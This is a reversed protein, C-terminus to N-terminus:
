EEVDFFEITNLKNKLEKNESKLQEIEYKLEKITKDKKEEKLRKKTLIEQISIYLNKNAIVIIDLYDSARTIAEYFMKNQIYPYWGDRTSRICLEGDINYFDKETLIVILKDFEQGFVSKTSLSDGYIKTFTKNGLTRTIYEDSEICKFGEYVCKHRIYKIAGCKESFYRVGINYYDYLGRRSTSHLLRDEFSFLESNRRVSKKLKFFCSKDVKQKLFSENDRQVESPHVVQEGDVSFIAMKDSNIASEIIDEDIRQSEDFFLIDANEMSEEFESLSIKYFVEVSFNLKKSIIIQDDNIDSGMIMLIKKNNNSYHKLIDLLLLTKGCGPGGSIVYKNSKNKLINDKINTQETNLRYLGNIFKDSDNYPSVLFDSNKLNELKQLNNGEFPFLDKIQNFEKEELTSNVPNFVFLNDSSDVYMVVYVNKFKINLLEYHETAQEEIAKKKPLESKIEVDVITDDYAKLLDFETDFQNNMKFGLAFDNLQRVDLTENLRHVFNYYTKIEDIGMQPKDDIFKYSRDHIKLYSGILNDDQSLVNELELLNVTNQFKMFIGVM